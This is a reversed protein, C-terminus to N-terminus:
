RKVCRMIDAPLLSRNSQLFKKFRSDLLVTVGTDDESRVPRGLMQGFTILAKYNYWQFDKAELMSKVFVDGANLYPVRVVIQFRARDYKFDVGQQCIPSLFVADAPSDSFFEKLSDRFTEPDHSVVRKVGRDKLARLIDRSASYSPSHILGRQNPFANLVTQINSVITDFNDKWCRASNDTLYRDKLVIDRHREPFTSPLRIFRVDEPRLGIRYCFYEKDYITGSMLLRKNGYSLVLAETANGTHKPIFRFRTGMAPFTEEIDLVFNVMRSDNLSKLEEDYMTRANTDEPPMFESQSFWEHWEETTKFEPLEVRDSIFSRGRVIVSKTLLERLMDEMDHCEDVVILDRKDFFGNLSAQFVFSHFNHIIHDNGSAVAIAGIYPCLRDSTCTSRYNTNNICPASGCDQGAFKPTNGKYIEQIATKYRLGKNTDTGMPFCPYSKRGKMMVTFDSFDDFYQDQLSKRPTLIHSKGYYRALSMAIASKGSGVPGELIVTQVGSDFAKQIEKIAYEQQPRPDQGNLPFLDIANPTM